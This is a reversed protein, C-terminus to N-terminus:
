VLSKELPKLTEFAILAPIVNTLVYLNIEGEAGNPPILSLPNPFSAPISDM